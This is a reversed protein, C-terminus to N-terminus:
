RSDTWLPPPEKTNDYRAASRRIRVETAMGQSLHLLIASLL